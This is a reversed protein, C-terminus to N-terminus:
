PVKYLYMLVTLVAESPQTVSAQAAKFGNAARVPRMLVDWVTAMSAFYLARLAWPL